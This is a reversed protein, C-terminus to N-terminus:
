RLHFRELKKQMVEIGSIGPMVLDVFVVDFPKDSSKFKELAEEGNKAVAVEFDLFELM